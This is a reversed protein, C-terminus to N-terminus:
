FSSRLSLRWTIFGEGESLTPHPRRGAFILHKFNPYQLVGKLPLLM